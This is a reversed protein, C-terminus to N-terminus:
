TLIERVLLLGRRYRSKVTNLPEDLIESIELFTLEELGHLTVVMKYKLPLKDIAALLEEKLNQRDFIEDPLPALDPINDLSNNEEDENELESFVLIKKQRLYDLATNKAIKFIWAKFSKTRDFKKLNKWVKVFVDQTIDEVSSSNGAFRLSFNYISKLYRRVLEELAKEDGDLYEGVLKEDSINDM